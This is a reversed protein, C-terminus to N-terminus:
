AGMLGDDNWTYDKNITKNHSVAVHLTNCISSNRLSFCQVSNVRGDVQTIKNTVRKKTCGVTTITGNIKTIKCSCVDRIIREKIGFRQSFWDFASSM